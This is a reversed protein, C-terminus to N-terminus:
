AILPEHATSHSGQRNEVVKNNLRRGWVVTGVNAKGMNERNDHKRSRGCNEVRLISQWCGKSKRKQRPGAGRKYENKLKTSWCVGLLYSISVDVLERGEKGVFIRLENDLVQHRAEM